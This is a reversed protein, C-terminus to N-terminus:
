GGSKNPRTSRVKSSDALVLAVTFIIFLIAAVVVALLCFSIAGWKTSVHSSHQAIPIIGEWALLFGGILYSGVITVVARLLKTVRRRETIVYHTGYLAFATLALGTDTLVLHPGWWLLSM